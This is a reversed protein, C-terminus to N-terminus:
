KGLVEDIKEERRNIKFEGITDEIIKSQNHSYGTQNRNGDNFFIVCDPGDGIIFEVWGRIDNNIESASISWKTPYLDIVDQSILDHYSIVNYVDSILGRTKRLVYIM